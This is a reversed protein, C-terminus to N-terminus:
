RRKLRNWIKFGIATKALDGLIFPAVGIVFATALDVYRLLASFGFVYITLTGMFVALFAKGTREYISGTIFAGFLYGIIYGINPGLLSAVGGTFIPFGLAGQGLFLAVALVGRKTGLFLTLFLILQARFSIPVPTFPLPIELRGIFAILLSSFFVISFDRIFTNEKALTIM